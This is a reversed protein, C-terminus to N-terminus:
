GSLACLFLVWCTSDAAVMPSLAFYDRHLCCAAVCCHLYVTSIIWTETM